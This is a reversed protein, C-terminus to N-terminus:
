ERPRHRERFDHWGMDLRASAAERQMIRDTPDHFEDSDRFRRVRTKIQPPATPAATDLPPPATPAIM